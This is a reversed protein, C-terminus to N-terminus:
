SPCILLCTLDHESAICQYNTKADLGLMVILDRTHM